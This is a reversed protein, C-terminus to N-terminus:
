GTAAARDGRSEQGCVPDAGRGASGTQARDLVAAHQGIHVLVTLVALQNKSFGERQQICDDCGVATAVAFVMPGPSISAAIVRNRSAMEARWGDGVRRSSSPTAFPPM